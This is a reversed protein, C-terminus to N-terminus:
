VSPNLQQEVKVEETKPQINNSDTNNITYSMYIQWVIGCVNGVLVKLHVPVFTHNFLSVVCWYKMSNTLITTFKSQMNNKGVELDRAKLSELLFVGTAISFSSLLTNDLIVSSIIRAANNTIPKTFAPLLTGFWLHGLPAGYFTSVSSQRLTREFCHDESSKQEIFKQCLTDGLM